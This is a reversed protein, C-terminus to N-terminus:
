VCACMSLFPTSHFSLILATSRAGLKVQYIDVDV